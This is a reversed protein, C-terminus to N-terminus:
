EGLYAVDCSYLRKKSATVLWGILLSLATVDGCYVRRCHTEFSSASLTISVSYVTIM